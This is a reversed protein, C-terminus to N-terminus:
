IKRRKRCIYGEIPGFDSIAVGRPNLGGLFPKGQSSRRLIEICLDRMALTGCPMSVSGFIEIAQTVSSLRVSSSMYLSSSHSNVNALFLMLMVVSYVNM